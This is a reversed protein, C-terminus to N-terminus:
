LALRPGQKPAPARRTTSRDLQKLLQRLRLEVPERRLTFPGHRHQEGALTTDVQQELKLLWEPLDVSSGPSMELYADIYKALQEFVREAQGPDTQHAAAAPVLALLRDIILPRVFRESIHDSITPLRMAYKRELEQLERWHADAMSATRSKLLEGWRSAVRTMRHKSLEHHALMMPLLNWQDREYRAELRLLDLFRDFKDGYDSQTTTTNYEVFRDLEDLVTTFILELLETVHKRTLKEQRIGDALNEGIGLLDEELLQDIFAPVGEHLIARLNSVTMLRAHLLDAGYEVIFKKTRDWLKEDLFAEVASLRMTRGHRLWLKAFSDVILGTVNILQQARSADHYRAPTARDPRKKHSRKASKHQNPRLRSSSLMPTNLDVTRFAAAFCEDLGVRYLRDFETIAPGDPRSQREMEFAAQLVSRCERVLGLRPLEVVLFRLLRQTSRASVVKDFRGGHDLSVYLLDENEMEILLKPLTRKTGFIDGRLLYGLFKSLKDKKKGVIARLMHSAMDCEITPGSIQHLLQMKAQLAIDLAVNADQDGVKAQIARQEVSKALQRLGKSLSNSREFWETLHQRAAVGQKGELGIFEAATEQWMRALAGLFKLRPELRIAAADFEADETPPISRDDMLEGENGDDSTDRFVVGEYAAAFLTDIDDAEEASPSEIPTTEFEDFKPVSWFEGANAELFDFFRRVREWRAEISIEESDGPLLIKQFLRQVLEFLSHDGSEAGVSDVRDLWQMLLGTAATQDGHALVAQVVRGFSRPSQLVEVRDRWFSLDGSSAGAQRWAALIQAAAVSSEYHDQGSVSPLDDVVTTAFKDWWDALNQFQELFDAQEVGRAASETTIEGALDLTLEVLNLITEARHDPIGDERAAFLPFHAQFGLINWPDILAGCEIGRILLEHSERFCERAQDIDGSTVAQRGESLKCRLECEIRSAATPIREAMERAANPYGLRAYQIAVHQSQVQRAGYEALFLNLYQRVRGFPQRYQELERMLRAQQSEPAISMLWEYFQDRLQAVEPLLTTLSTTSDHATPGSGSIASAMLITGGLVGAADFLRDEQSLDASERGALWAILADLIVKRIIFRRYYGSNDIEDPDWEGFPYNTRKNVPHIHDHARLDIALEDLRSIDFYATLLMPEPTDRCLQLAADVLETLDNNAIGVDKLYLPLPQFREHPYVECQRDNELVACPRYGVFDNLSDICAETSITPSKGTENEGATGLQTVVAELFRVLYFPSVETKESVHFLLDRHYRHYAPLLQDFTATLVRNAQEHNRFADSTASLKVLEARLHKDVNSWRSPSWEQFLRNMAVYVSREATGSSYNLYGLVTRAADAVSLNEPSHDRSTVDNM